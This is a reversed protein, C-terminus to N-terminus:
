RVSFVHTAMNKSRDFINPVMGTYAMEAALLAREEDIYSTIVMDLDCRWRSDAHIGVTLVTLDWETKSPVLVYMQGMLGKLDLM